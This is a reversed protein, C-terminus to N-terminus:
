KCGWPLRINGSQLQIRVTGGPQTGCLPIHRARYRQVVDFALSRRHSVLGASPQISDLLAPSSSTRSGHHPVLLVGGTKQTPSLAMAQAEVAQPPDGSIWISGDPTQLHAMLSRDNETALSVAAESSGSPWLVDLRSKGIQITEGVKLRVVTCNVKAMLAVLHDWDSSTDLPPVDAVLCRSVPIDRLIRFAGGYHDPHRHTLVLLDLKNVGARRLREPSLPARQGNPHGPGADVLISRGDSTQILFADGHGVNFATLTTLRTKPLQMSLAFVLTLGVIPWLARRWRPLRRLSSCGLVLIALVAATPALETPVTIRLGPRDVAHILWSSASIALGCTSALFDSLAHPLGLTVAMTTLTALPLAVLSVWPILALGMLLGVPALCSFYFIQIPATAITAAISTRLLPGFFRMIRKTPPKRRQAFAVVIGLVACHSLVAGPRALASIPLALELTVTGLLIIHPRIPRRSWLLVAYLLFAIEARIVSPGLGCFLGYLGVLPITLLTAVMLPAPRTRGPCLRYWLWRFGWVFAGAFIAIHLGSVAWLHLLGMRALQDVEIRPVVARSGSALAAALRRSSTPQSGLFTDIVELRRLAVRDRLSPVPRFLIGDPVPECTIPRGRARKQSCRAVTKSGVPLPQSTRWAYLRIPGAASQGAQWFGRFTPQPTSTIQVPVLQKPTMPSNYDPIHGRLQDHYGDRSEYAPIHPSRLVGLSFGLIGVCIGVGITRHNPASVHYLRLALYAGIAPLFAVGLRPIAVGMVLGTLFTELM